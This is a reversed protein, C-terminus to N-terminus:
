VVQVLTTDVGLGKNSTILNQIEQCNALFFFVCYTALKRVNLNKQKWLTQQSELELGSKARSLKKCMFSVVNRSLFPKNSSKFHVKLAPSSAGHTFHKSHLYFSRLESGLM